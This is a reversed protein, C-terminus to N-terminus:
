YLPVKSAIELLIEDETLNDIKADYTLVVRHRLVSLFVRQVDDHKVYERGELYAVAKSSIMLGISWRPSAGYLINPNKERTKHILRAIYDKIDDSMEMKELWKRITIFKRHTIIKKIKISSEKEVTNLVEIEEALTPYDVLVKFLFRDVQAEPLPYTGEQELPNQTALVFFPDPLEFTKGWITVQREQMAELLASQVKPTTRNIEDALVINAVIPGLKTEFNRTKSNFVDVWMVDSPLMDPTFQIRKFDANMIDAFIHIVKTKALWPVWEVLVHGWCLINVIISNIFEDMGVIKKHMEEKVLFLDKHVFELSKLGIEFLSTEVLPTDEEPTQRKIRELASSLKRADEKWFLFLAVGFLVLFGVVLFIITQM